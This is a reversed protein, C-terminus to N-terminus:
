WIHLTFPCFRPWSANRWGKSPLPVWKLLAPLALRWLAQVDPPRSPCTNGRPFPTTLHLFFTCRGGKQPMGSGRPWCTWSGCSRYALLDPSPLNDGCWIHPPPPSLTILIHLAVGQQAAPGVGEHGALGAAVAGTCWSPLPHCTTVVLLTPSLPSPIHPAVVHQATPAKGMHDTAGACLSRPSCPPLPHPSCSPVALHPCSASVGGQINRNVTGQVKGAM